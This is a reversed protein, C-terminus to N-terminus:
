QRAIKSKWIEIDAEFYFRIGMYRHDTNPAKTPELGKSKDWAKHLPKRSHNERCCRGINERRCSKGTHKKLWMEALYSDKFVRLKGDATIAVIPKRNRGSNKKGNESRHEDLNKWGKASKRQGRKSMFEAWTKGKNAPVHGPLFRGTKPDITPKPRPTPPIYLETSM